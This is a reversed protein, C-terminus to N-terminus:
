CSSTAIEEMASILDKRFADNREQMSTIRDEIEKLEELSVTRMEAPEIEVLKKGERIKKGTEAYADKWPIGRNFSMLANATAYSSNKIASISAEANFKLGRFLDNVRKLIEEILLASRVALLKSIQFDRHYGSSKNLVIGLASQFHGLLMSAYGQVMELFDPNRKNAMLSSGTTFGEPLIFLPLEDGSFIILDQSIRSLVTMIGVGSMLFEAEDMGRRSALFMPNLPPHEFGLYSAVNRFDIDTVQGFGSGYGFPLVRIRSVREILDRALYEFQSALFDLYSVASIVMAQRYHTYGPMPGSVTDRKALITLATANCLKALELIHDNIFLIIDTHSQENRSLFIRLNKGAIGADKLVFEEVNGHVDELGPDLKLPDQLLKLLSKAISSSEKCPILNRRHIERHYAMLTLVEYEELHQDVSVDDEVMLRNLSASSDGSAGGQWIKPM